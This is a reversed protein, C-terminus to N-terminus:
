EQKHTSDALASLKSSLANSFDASYGPSINGLLAYVTEHAEKISSSKELDVNDHEHGVM